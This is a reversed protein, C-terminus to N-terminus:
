TTIGEAEARFMECSRGTLSLGYLTPSLSPLSVRSCPSSLRLAGQFPRCSTPPPSPARASPPPTFSNEPKTSEQCVGVSVGVVMKEVRKARPLKLPTSPFAHTKDACDPRTKKQWSQVVLHHPINPVNRRAEAVRDDM